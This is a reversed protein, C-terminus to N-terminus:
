VKKGSGAKGGKHLHGRHHHRGRRARSYGKHGRPDKGTRGPSGSTAQGLLGSAPQFDGSSGNPQVISDAGLSSLPAGAPEAAAVGTSGLLALLVYEFVPM